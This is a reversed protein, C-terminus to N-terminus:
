LRVYISGEREIVDYRDLRVTPDVVHEGTTVKYEYGHWPCVIHLDDENFKQCVFLGDRDIVDEVQPMLMGDCVPGGQHPCINRYAFCIGKHRIVGIEVDGIAVVRTTGEKLEDSRFVLVEESM